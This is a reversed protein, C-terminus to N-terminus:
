NAHYGDLYPRSVTVVVDQGSEGIGVGGRSGPATPGVVAFTVDMHFYPCGAFVYTRQTRTSLGGEASLVRLLENRTMGPKVTNMAQLAKLVWEVHQQNVDAASTQRAHCPVPGGVVVCAAIGLALFIRTAM